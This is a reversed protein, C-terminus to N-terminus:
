SSFLTLKTYGDSRQRRFYYLVAGVLLAVVVVGLTVGVVIATKSSKCSSEFECSVSCTRATENCTNNCSSVESLCPNGTSSLCWGSQCTEVGTCFIGDDCDTNSACPKFIDVQNSNYDRSGGGAFLMIDRVSAAALGSRAQSLSTTTWAGSAANFVDVRNSQYGDAEEGGGFLVLNKVSAAALNSRAQSLSTTTWVGSTANFIDVRDSHSSWVSANYGGGFLVLDWVSVAAFYASVVSLSATTWVGSTANFVDVRASYFLIYGGGGFLVLDKVSAAALDERAVSLSATTWIGSIANFIDVRDSWVIPTNNYIYGGGGFLVLDKVSAAALGSRAQSLIATTSFGESFGVFLIAFV